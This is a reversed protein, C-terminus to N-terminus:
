TNESAGGTNKACRGRNNGMQPVNRELLERRLCDYFNEKAYKEQHPSHGCRALPVFRFSAGLKKLPETVGKAPHPDSEGHVVVVPCTLSQAARLLGGSMRLKDAESWVAAYQRGNNPLQDGPQAADQQYAVCDSKEVLAGLETLLADKHSEEGAELRALLYLFREREVGSLRSLRNEMILPAYSAELPGSDVLILKEVQQPHRAAFLIGLWAGWSHGILAVPEQGISLLQLHLEEVLDDIRYQTQIPEAVGCFNSLERAMGALSGCAGPGGHLVAARCPSNGYFRVPGPQLTNEPKM